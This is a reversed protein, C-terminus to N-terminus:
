RLLSTHLHTIRYDRMALFWYFSGKFLLVWFHNLLIWYILDNVFLSIIEFSREYFNSRFRHSQTQFNAQSLIILHLGFQFYCSANPWDVRPFHPIIIRLRIKLSITEISKGWSDLINYKALLDFILWFSRMSEKTKMKM